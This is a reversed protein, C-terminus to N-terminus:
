FYYRAEVSAARPRAGMESKLIFGKPADGAPLSLGMFMEGEDSLSYVANVSLTSSGDVLNMLALATGTWLPTFEYSAGMGAYWRAIYPSELGESLLYKTYEDVYEVGAGHHYVALRLDLSSPFRRELELTWELKAEKNDMREAWHGEARVGLWDFFTGQFSGGYVMMRRVKGGLAMFEYDFAVTSIRCLYSTRDKDPTNEFGSITDQDHGYGAVTLLTLQTLAGLGAELRVADVGAKYVRYFVDAAFPAFFDNPTFYLTSALNVPQRGISLDAGGLTATLNAWDLAMEGKSDISKFLGIEPAGSRDASQLKVFSSGQAGASNYYGLAYANLEMSLWGGWAGSFELRTMGGAVYDNQSKFLQPAEPNETMVGLARISARLSLHTEDEQSEYFGFCPTAFLLIVIGAALLTWSASFHSPLTM